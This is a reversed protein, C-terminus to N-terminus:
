ALISSYILVIIKWTFSFCKNKILNNVFLCILFLWCENNGFYCDQKCQKQHFSFYKEVNELRIKLFYFCFILMSWKHWYTLICMQLYEKYKFMHLLLRFHEARPRKPVFFFKQWPKKLVVSMQIYLIHLVKNGIKKGKQYRQYFSRLM